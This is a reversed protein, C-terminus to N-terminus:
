ALLPVGTTTGPRLTVCREASEILQAVEDESLIVEPQDMTPVRGDPVFMIKPRSGLNLVFEESGYIESRTGGRSSLRGHGKM